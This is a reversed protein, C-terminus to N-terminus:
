ELLDFEKFLDGPKVGLAQSIAVVDCPKIIKRGNLMANLERPSLNAKQAVARQKLGKEDIIRNIASPLKSNYDEIQMKEGREINM